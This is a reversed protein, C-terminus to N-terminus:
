CRPCDGLGLGLLGLLTAVLMWGAFISGFVLGTYLTVSITRLPQPLRGIWTNLRHSMRAAEKGTTKM